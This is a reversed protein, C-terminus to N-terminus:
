AVLGKGMDLGVINRVVYDADRSGAVPIAAHVNALWPRPDAGEAIGVDELLIESAPRNDLTVLIQGYGRSVEHVPGVPSCGLTLGGALQQRGGLLVGSVGGELLADGAFQPLASNASSLGGVLYLGRARALAAVIETVGGNRPDGHVIGLGAAVRGPGLRAAAATDDLSPLLEFSGAPLRCALVVAAATGWHETGTACIGHGVTGVWAGIGTAERLGAVLRTFHPAVESTAYVFAVTHDDLRGLGAALREILRDVTGGAAHAAVFDTM